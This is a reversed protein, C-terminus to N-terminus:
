AKEFVLMTYRITGRRHLRELHLGGLEAESLRAFGASAKDGAQSSLDDFAADLDREARPKMLDSLDKRKVLRLGAAAAAATWGEASPAVPCRWYRKFGALFEKDRQPVPDVPMDDILIFRGGPDIASALNAITRGPDASHILSEIAVVVNYRGPLPADYSSLHFDIRNEFGRAKAIGKASTWQEPSITVGTWHGGHVHLCRFCTGGYGSGADLGRVPTLAVIHPDVFKYITNPSFAGTDADILFRHITDNERGSFVQFDRDRATWRHLEDYYLAVDQASM